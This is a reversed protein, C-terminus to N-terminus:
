TSAAVPSRWTFGAALECPTGCLMPKTATTPLLRCLNFSCADAFCIVSSCLILISYLVASDRKEQNILPNIGIPPLKRWEPPFGDVDAWWPLNFDIEPEVEEDGKQKAEVLKGELQKIKAAMVRMTDLEKRAEQMQYIQDAVNMVEDLSRTKPTVDVVEPADGENELEDTQEVESGNQEETGHVVEEVEDDDANELDDDNSDEDGEEERTPGKHPERDDGSGSGTDSM